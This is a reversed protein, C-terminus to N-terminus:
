AELQKQIEKEKDIKNQCEEMPDECQKIPTAAVSKQPSPTVPGSGKM